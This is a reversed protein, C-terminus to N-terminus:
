IQILSLHQSTKIHVFGTLGLNLKEPNLLTVRKEIVGEMQLRQIRRWCPTTTLGVKDAIEATSLTADAQILELIQKDLKDMVITFTKVSKREIM